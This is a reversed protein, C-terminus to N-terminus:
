RPRAAVPIVFRLATHTASFAIVKTDKLGAARGAEIVDIERITEVGKPYVIWLAGAPKLMPGLKSVKKLVGGVPAALFVLDAKAKGAAPLGELEKLFDEGFEGEVRVALGAELGLKKARSPPHLIKDAWKEAAEGLALAAAGGAWELHLLGGQASVSRLERLNIRLREEGKFLIHDGELQARGSSERGQHQLRCEMEQGM